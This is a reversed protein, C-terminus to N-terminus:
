RSPGPRKPRTTTQACGGEGATAWQTKAGLLAVWGMAHRCQVPFGLRAGRGSRPRTSRSGPSAAVRCQAPCPSGQGREVLLEGLAAWGMAHRCQVPFWLRAGRGSRPRTSRSGPSAAVRCQAPCPSGQGREVLLEGRHAKAGLLAAWGVAGRCQVPFGLRAGRGSRPRTLRAGPSAAVRCQAPCAQGAGRWLYLPGRRGTSRSVRSALRGTTKLACAGITAHHSSAGRSASM